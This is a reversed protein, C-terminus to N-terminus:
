AFRNQADEITQYGALQAYTTENFKDVYEQDASMRYGTAASYNAWDENVLEQNNGIAANLQDLSYTRQGTYYATLENVKAYYEEDSAFKTRDLERL